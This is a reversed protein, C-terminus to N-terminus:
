LRRLLEKLASERENRLNLIGEVDRQADEASYGATDFFIPKNSVGYAAGVSPSRIRGSQIKLLAQYGMREQAGIPEHMKQKILTVGGGDESDTLVGAVAHQVHGVLQRHSYYAGTSHLLAPLAAPFAKLAERPIHRGIIVLGNHYVVSKDPPSSDLAERVQLAFSEAISPDITEGPDIQALFNDLNTVVRLPPIQAMLDRALDYPNDISVNSFKPLNM